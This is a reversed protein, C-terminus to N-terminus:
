SLQLLYMLNEKFEELVIPKAQFVNFFRGEDIYKSPYITLACLRTEKNKMLAAKAIEVGSGDPLNMDIIMADYPERSEIYVLAELVSNAVDIHIDVNLEKLFAQMIEREFEITFAVDDILLIKKKM